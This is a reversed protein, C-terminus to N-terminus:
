ETGEGNVPENGDLGASAEGELVAPNDGAPYVLEYEGGQVPLEEVPDLPLTEVFVEEAPVADAPELSRSRYLGSVPPISDSVTKELLRRYESTNRIFVALNFALCVAMFLASAILAFRVGPRRRRSFIGPKKKTEAVIPTSFIDFDTGAKEACLSLCRQIHGQNRRYMGDFGLALMVFFLPASNRADPNKLTEELLDFFKEDGSLENYGRALIYWNDRFSFRGERVMYDIFFILPKEILAFERALDDDQGARERTDELLALIHERFSELEVPSNICALQWYNCIALFLPNCLRELEKGTNMVYEGEKGTNM